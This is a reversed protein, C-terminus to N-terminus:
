NWIFSERFGIDSGWEIGVLDLQYQKTEGPKIDGLFLKYKAIMRENIRDWVELYIYADGAMKQGLNIVSFYIRCGGEIVEGVFPSALRLDAVKIMCSAVFLFLLLYSLRQRIM